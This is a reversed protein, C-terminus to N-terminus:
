RNCRTYLSPFVSLQWRAEVPIGGSVMTPDGRRQQQSEARPRSRCLASNYALTAIPAKAVPIRRHAPHPGVLLRAPQGQLPRPLTAMQTWRVDRRRREEAGPSGLQVTGGRRSGPHDVVEPLGVLPPHGLFSEVVEGWTFAGIRSPLRRWTKLKSRGTETRHRLPPDAQGPTQPKPPASVRSMSRDKQRSQEPITSGGKLEACKRQRVIPGPAGLPRSRPAPSRCRADRAIGPERAITTGCPAIQM